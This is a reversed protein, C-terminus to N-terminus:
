VPRFAICNIETSLFPFNWIVFSAASNKVESFPLFSPTTEITPFYLVPFLKMTLLTNNPSISFPNRTPGVILGHVFTLM